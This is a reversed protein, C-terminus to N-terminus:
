QSYALVVSGLVILGAGLWVRWTIRELHRGILIPSLFIVVPVNLRGLALVVGVPAYELAYWRAWTSLGVLVGAALQFLLMRRPIPPGARGNRRVLLVLGYALASAVMGITVGLLPSDLTEMGHRIFIPSISFCLATGLGFLARGSLAQGLLARRPRASHAPQSEPIAQEERTEM